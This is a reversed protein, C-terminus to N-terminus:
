RLLKFTITRIFYYKLNFYKSQRGNQKGSRGELLTQQVMGGGWRGVLQGVARQYRALDARSDVWGGSTYRLTKRRPYLPRPTFSTVKRNFTWTLLAHLQHM